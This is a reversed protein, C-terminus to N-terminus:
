HCNQTQPDRPRPTTKGERGFLRLKTQQKLSRSLQDQLITHVVQSNRLRIETKAPHVNVDLEGPDLHLSLFISSATIQKPLQWLGPLNGATSSPM